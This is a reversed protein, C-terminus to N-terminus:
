RVGQKPALAETRRLHSSRLAFDLASSLTGYIPHDDPILDFV